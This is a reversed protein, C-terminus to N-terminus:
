VTGEQYPRVTRQVLCRARRDPAVVRDFGVAVLSLSQRVARQCRDPRARARRMREEPSLTV